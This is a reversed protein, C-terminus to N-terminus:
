TVQVEGFKTDCPALDDPLMKLTLSPLRDPALADRVADHVRARLAPDFFRINDFRFYEAVKPLPRYGPLAPALLPDGGQPPLPTMAAGLGFGAVWPTREKLAKDARKRLENRDAPPQTGLYVDINKRRTLDSFWGTKPDSLFEFAKYRYAQKREGVPTRRVPR